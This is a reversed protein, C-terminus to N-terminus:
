GLLKRIEDKGQALVEAYQGDLRSLEESLVKSFEPDQDASLRVTQGTQQRVQQEKQRLRPEWRERLQQELQKLNDIYQRFLGSYQELLYDLNKADHGKPPGIERIADAVAPFRDLDTEYRPLTINALLTDVIGNKVWDREDKETEDIIKRLSESKPDTLRSGAAAKGRKVASDRRVADRDVQVDATRELALELASKIKSM